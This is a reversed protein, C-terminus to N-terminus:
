NFTSTIVKRYELDTLCDAKQKMEPGFFDWALLKVSRGDRAGGDGEGARQSVAPSSNQGNHVVTVSGGNLVMLSVCPWVNCWFSFNQKVARSSFKSTLSHIIFENTWAHIQLVSCSKYMRTKAKLVEKSKGFLSFEAKCALFVLWRLIDVAGSSMVFIIFHIFVSTYKVSGSVFFSSDFLIIHSFM